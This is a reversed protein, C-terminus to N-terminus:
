SLMSSPSFFAYFAPSNASVQIAKAIMNILAMIKFLCTKMSLKAMTSQITTPNLTPYHMCNRAAPFVAELSGDLILMM